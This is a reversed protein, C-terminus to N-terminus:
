TTLQPLWNAIIDALNSGFRGRFRRLLAKNSYDVAESDVWSLIFILLPIIM